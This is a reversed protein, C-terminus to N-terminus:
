YALEVANVKNQIDPAHNLFCFNVNSKKYSVFIKGGNTLRGFLIEEAIKNKLEVEIVKDVYQANNGAKVIRKSLYKILSNDFSMSVSKETLQTAFEQLKQDTIQALINTDLDNLYVIDDLKSYFEDNFFPLDLNYSDIDNRMSDKRHSQNSRIKFGISKTSINNHSVSTTMIIITHFFKCVKGTNDRLEGTDIINEIINCVSAHAKDIDHLLIVSYPCKNVAEILLGEKESGYYKVPSGIMKNVSQSDAYDEMEFHIFEMNNYKALQKSLATKGVGHNGIFLYCGMPKNMRKLGAKNLKISSCLRSIAQDQGFITSKISSELNKLQKNDQDRFSLKPINVISAVLEEIDEPTVQASEANYLDQCQDLFIKKRVGAEDMLDIAKDPLQRNHIYRDSLSVAAELAADQYQVGHHGEYYKKLGYLINLASKCDPEGVFIQQFRRALAMDKAFYSSYESFTTAGICRIAGKALAPKLLNGADLAGNNTSGAGIITHIEDIFIILDKKQEIENLLKKIRDEFDGRYKTGAVLSGVDLAYITSKKLIDPVDKNVIKLALGEAIATKGVGPEGVLLANNKRRKCLVEITRQIEHQRGVLCDIFGNRAKENLNICHKALINNDNENSMDEKYKTTKTDSAFTTNTNIYLDNESGQNHRDSANQNAKGKTNSDIKDIYQLITHRSLKLDMLCKLAFSEQEFFFAALLDVGDVDKQNLTEKHVIARQILHQFRNSPKADAYIQTSLPNSVCQLKIYKTLKKNITDKTDKKIKFYQLVKIVDADELLVLLLHEPTVFENNYTNAVEIAKDLDAQLNHSFM